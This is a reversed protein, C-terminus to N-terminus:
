NKSKNQVIDAFQQLVAKYETETMSDVKSIDALQKPNMKSLNGLKAQLNVEDILAFRALELNRQARVEDIVSDPCLIKGDNTVGVYLSNNKYDNRLESSIKVSKMADNYAQESGAIFCWAANNVTEQDLKSKHERLRRMTQKWDVDIGALVRRGAAYLIQCKAIEERAIHSLTYSRAYAKKKFLLESERILGKANTVLAKMYDDIQNINLSM